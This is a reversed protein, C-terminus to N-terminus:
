KKHGSEDACGECLGAYRRARQLHKINELYGDVLLIVPLKRNLYTM